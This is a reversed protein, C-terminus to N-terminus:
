SLMELLASKNLLIIEKRPQMAVSAVIRESLWDKYNPDRLNITDILLKNIDYGIDHKRNLIINDLTANVFSTFENKEFYAQPNNQIIHKFEIPKM